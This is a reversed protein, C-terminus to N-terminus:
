NAHFVTIKKSLTKGNGDVLLLNYIGNPLHATSITKANTTSFQERGQSDTLKLNYSVADTYQITFVNDCPIPNIKLINDVFNQSSVKNTAKRLFTFNNRPHSLLSYNFWMVGDSFADGKSFDGSTFEDYVEQVTPWDNTICSTCQYSTVVNNIETKFYGEPIKMLNIPQNGGGPTNLFNHFGAAEYVGGILTDGWCNKHILPQTPTLARSAYALPWIRTGDFKGSTIGLHYFGSCSKDFLNQVNSTPSSYLFRDYYPDIFGAIEDMEPQYRLPLAYVPPSLITSYLNNDQLEFKLEMEMPIKCFWQSIDSMVQTIEQFREYCVKAPTSTGGHNSNTPSYLYTVIGGVTIQADFKSQNWYEFELSLWDFNYAMFGAEIGYREISFKTFKAYNLMQRIYDARELIDYSNNDEDPYIWESPIGKEFQYVRDEGPCIPYSCDEPTSCAGDISPLIYDELYGQSAFVLGVKIGHEHFTHLFNAVSVQYDTHGVIPITSNTFNDASALKYVAIYTIYNTICYNLLENSKPTASSGSTVFDIEENNIYIEEIMEDGCSVYMGREYNSPPASSFPEEAKLNLLSTFLFTICIISKYSSLHPPTFSLVTAVRRILNSKKM